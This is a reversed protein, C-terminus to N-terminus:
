QPLTARPVIAAYASHVGKTVQTYIELARTEDCSASQSSLSALYDPPADRLMGEATHTIQFLKCTSCKYYKREWHDVFYYVAQTNCLPCSSQFVEKAM